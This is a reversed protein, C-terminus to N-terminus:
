KKLARGFLYVIVLLIGIVFSLGFLAGGYYSIMSGWNAPSNIMQSPKLIPKIDYAKNVTLTVSSENGAQYCGKLRGNETYYVCYGGVTGTLDNINVRVIGSVSAPTLYFSQAQDASLNQFTVSETAYGPKSLTYTWTQNVPGAASFSAWGDAATVAYGQLTTENYVTFNAGSLAAMTNIDYAGASATWASSFSALLLFLFGATFFTKM